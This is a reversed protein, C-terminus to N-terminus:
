LPIQITSSGERKREGGAGAWRGVWGYGGLVQGGGCTVRVCARTYERVCSCVHAHVYACAYAHMCM